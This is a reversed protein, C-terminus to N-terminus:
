RFTFNPPASLSRTLPPPADNNRIPSDSSHAGLPEGVSHARAGSKLLTMFARPALDGMHLASTAFPAGFYNRKLKDPAVKHLTIASAMSREDILRVEDNESLDIIADLGRKVAVVDRPDFSEFSSAFNATIIDPCTDRFRTVINAAKLCAGEDTLDFPPLNQQRDGYVARVAEKYFPKARRLRENLVTIEHQIEALSVPQRNVYLCSVNLYLDGQNAQKDVIRKAIEAATTGIRNAGNIARLNDDSLTGLLMGDKPPNGLEEIFERKVTERISEGKECAGNTQINLKRRQSNAAVLFLGKDTQVMLMAAGSANVSLGMARELLQRNTDAHEATKYSEPLADFLTQLVRSKPVKLQDQVFQLISRSAFHPADYVDVPPLWRPKSGPKIQMGSQTASRRVVSSGIRSRISPSPSHVSNSHRKPCLESLHESRQITRNGEHTLSDNSLRAETDDAHSLSTAVSVNGIQNIM